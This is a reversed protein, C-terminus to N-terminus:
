LDGGACGCAESGTGDRLGCAGACSPLVAVWVVVSWYFPGVLYLSIGCASGSSGSAVSLGCGRVVLLSYECVDCVSGDGASGCM